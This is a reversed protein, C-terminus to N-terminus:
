LDHALRVLDEMFVLGWIGAQDESSYLVLM